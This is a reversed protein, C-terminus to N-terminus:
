CDVHSCIQILEFVEFWFFDLGGVGVLGRHNNKQGRYCMWFARISM